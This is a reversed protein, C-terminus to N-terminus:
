VHLGTTLEDLIYRICQQIRTCNKRLKVGSRKGVLLNTSQGLEIYGTWRRANSSYKKVKPHNMSSILHKM